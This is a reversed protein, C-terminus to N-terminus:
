ISAMHPRHHINYKLLRICKLVHLLAMFFRLRTINSTYFYNQPPTPCSADNLAVSKLRYSTRSAKTVLYWTRGKLFKMLVKDTV